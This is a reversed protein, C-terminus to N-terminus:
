RWHMWTGIEIVNLSIWGEAAVVKGPLGNWAHVVRQSFSGLRLVTRVRMKKARDSWGIVRDMYKNTRSIEFIM